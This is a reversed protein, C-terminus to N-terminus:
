EGALVQGEMRRVWHPDNLSQLLARMTQGLLPHVQWPILEVLPELVFRRLHLRPHPLVLEESELICDGFLLLDLDIPRDTKGIGKRRGMEAEIGKLRHLLCFPDLETEVEAVANVFWGELGEGVPETQHLSSTRRLLIDGERQLTVLAKRCNGV